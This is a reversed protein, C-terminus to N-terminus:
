FCSNSFCFHNVNRFSLVCIKCLSYMRRGEDLHNLVIVDFIFLLCKNDREIDTCTEIVCTESAEMLCVHRSTVHCESHM